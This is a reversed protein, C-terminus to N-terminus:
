SKAGTGASAAPVTIVTICKSPDLYREAAARVKEVTTTRYRDLDFTMSAPNGLYHNYGELLNARALLSQLGEIMGAQRGTIARDFERKDIPSKRVNAVEDKVIKIVDDVNAGTRLTVTINFQGSFGQGGQDVEVNQALQKDHVLIKYLRGTGPRGLAEAAIDLEADDPGYNAPSHWGFQVQPLKALTDDTVTITKATVTPADIHVVKPKESTPMSGFWKQVLAKTATIDIDGAIAITANAPVYWTRYFNKVDEISAAVLDEHKGITLHRYPHGEPYLAESMAFRAKGYPRNDYNQRRENRVVDIQNDLSPKTLLELLHSMRDSELWLATELTNSPVVEYFNTRDTNTTGNIQSSGIKQLIEFHKDSGVNKSGQFLMHEFLHAFGSKGPVEDGSGVHYWVDVCVLPVSSDPILLVELGNPLTFKEFKLEPDHHAAPAIPQAIPKAPMPPPAAAVFSATSTATAVVAASIMGFLRKRPMKASLVSSNERRNM